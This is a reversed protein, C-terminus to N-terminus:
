IRLRKCGLALAAGHETMLHASMPTIIGLSGWWPLTVCLDEWLFFLHDIQGIENRGLPCGMFFGMIYSRDQGHGLRSILDRAWNGIVGV